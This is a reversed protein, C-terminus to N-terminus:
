SRLIPALRDLIAQTSDVVSSRGGAISWGMMMTDIAGMYAGAITWTESDSLDPARERIVEAFRVLWDRSAAGSAQLGPSDSLASYAALVRQRDSDIQAAVALCGASVAAQLDASEELADIALDWAALWARPVELVIDEKSAYRRYLTSRSVGARDAIHEMITDSFGHKEFLAFAADLIARKTAAHRQARLDAM